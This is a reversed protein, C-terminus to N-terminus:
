APENQTIIVDDVLLKDNSGNRSLNYIWLRMRATATLVTLEASYTSLDYEADGIIARVYNGTSPECVMKVTAWAFLAKDYEIGTAFAQANGTSDLYYWTENAPSYQLQFNYINAGDYHWLRLFWNTMEGIMAFSVEMGIRSPVPKPLYREIYAFRNTDSGGTLRCSFSGSRSAEAVWDIAAGTGSIRRNWREIGGEFDDLWVVDGRRDFTVISGLRAALEGLDSLTYVTPKSIEDVPLGLPAFPIPDTYDPRGSGRQGVTRTQKTTVPM